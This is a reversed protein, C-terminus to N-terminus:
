PLIAHYNFVGAADNQSVTLEKNVSINKLVQFKQDPWVILLSDIKNISDLGFHLRTDSSSQFGRTLMLEQFQMESSGTKNGHSWLYAKAGIGFKNMGEGKFSVSLFNKKPANNKLVVAPSNLRNIVLDLNGDNDLDAYAAGNFYGKMDGTGWDKSVDKFTSGAPIGSYFLIHPAM